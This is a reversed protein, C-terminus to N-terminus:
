LWLKAAQNPRPPFAGLGIVVAPATCVMTGIAHDLVALIPHMESSEEIPTLKCSQSWTHLLTDTAHMAQLTTDAPWSVM